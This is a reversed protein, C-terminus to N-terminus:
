HEEHLEETPPIIMTPIANDVMDALQRLVSACIKAKAENEILDRMYQYGHRVEIETGSPILGYDKRGTAAFFKKKREENYTAYTGFGLIIAIETESIQCLYDKDVQAVIKM